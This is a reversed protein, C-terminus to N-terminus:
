MQLRVVATAATVDTTKAPTINFHPHSETDTNIFPVSLANRLNSFKNLWTWFSRHRNNYHVFVKLSIFGIESWFWQNFTKSKVISDNERHAISHYIVSKRSERFSIRIRNQYWAGHKSDCCSLFPYFENM